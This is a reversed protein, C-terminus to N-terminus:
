KLKKKTLITKIRKADSVGSSIAAISCICGMVLSIVELKDSSFVNLKKM